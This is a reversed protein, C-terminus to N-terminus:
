NQPSNATSGLRPGGAALPAMLTILTLPGASGDQQLGHRQQFVIVRNQLQADYRDEQGAKVPAALKERLWRVDPGREGLQMSGSYGSPPHWVLQAKGRWLPLLDDLPVVVQSGALDLVPQAHDLRVLPVLRITRDPLNLELLAPHDLTLLTQWDGEFNLCRLGLPKITQCQEGGPELAVGWLAALTRSGWVADTPLEALRDILPKPPPPASAAATESQKPPAAAPSPTEPPGAPQTLSQPPNLAQASLPNGPEALTFAATPAPETVAASPLGDTAGPIPPLPIAPES